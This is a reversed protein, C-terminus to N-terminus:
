GNDDEDSAYQLPLVADMGALRLTRAAVGGERVVVALERQDRALGDALRILTSIGASDIFRLRSLDVSFPQRPETDALERLREYVEGANSMDIEGTVLV